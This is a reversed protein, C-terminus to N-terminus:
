KRFVVDVWYNSNNWSQNPFSSATGYAYVGNSGYVGGALAYVPPSNMGKDLFYASDYSFIGPTHYSIVYVTNANIAVPTSFNVQQWGSATENTFTARALLQGTGTWLSGTHTGTNNSTKYFRVGTVYGNTDSRFRVGLEVPKSLSGAVYKPVANSPWITYSANNVTVTVNGSQRTNGAADYAKAILTYSANAVSTTNWSYSYPSATDTSKLVGNVYFEVKSVGVNDSAGATISVTGSVTSGNAPSTISVTPATTDPVPNSVTVTVNGSQGVNGAADYAKAMLTYSGNSVTTTNWSFSYPASNSAAFLVNNRYFEVKSVGVNDSATASVAVTGQVTAGSAPSSIAVAPQTTDAVPNNVNVTISSSQGVNGAADYAKAALTHSGNTLFTTNWSLLYTATTDTGKLAGDVYFEVKSVGVNDSASATVNVTGSVTASAAPATISVTPKTTDTTGTGTGTGGGIVYNAPIPTTSVVIDDFAAWEPNSGGTYSNLNNGGFQVTNWGVSTSSGPYKWQVNTYSVVLNGDYWLEYVGDRNWTSGTQTNMKLRVDYRHWQGDAFGGPASPSVGTKLRQPTDVNYPSQSCYYNSDQPDCRFWAIYCGDTGRYTANTAWNFGAMPAGNGGTFYAFASGTRDYHIARFLKISSDAATKWGPQTKVWVRLYLEPYDQSFTKSIEAGGSYTVNNYYAVYAKRATGGTHDASGDPIPQITTALNGVAPISYHNNWNPPASSCNTGCDGNYQGSTNWNPQADFSEEFIVGGYSPLALAFLYFLMLLQQLMTKKTVSM